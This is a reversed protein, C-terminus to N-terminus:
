CRYQLCIVSINDRGGNQKAHDMLDQCADGLQANAELSQAISFDDLMGTLGDSCILFRVPKAVSVIRTDVQVDPWPGLARYIANKKPEPGNQGSDLWRQHLTHDTTIQKLGNKNFTYVRSDGVWFVVAREGDGMDLIGAITTGMGRGPKQNRETSATNIAASAVGVAKSIEDMAGQDSLSAFSSRVKTLGERIVEAAMRSAVEGNEHGGMGDAILFLGLDMDISMFDENLRRVCGVDTLGAAALTSLGHQGESVVGDESLPSMPITKDCDTMRDLKM